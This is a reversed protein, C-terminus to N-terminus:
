RACLARFDASYMLADYEELVTTPSAYALRLGAGEMASRVRATLGSIQAAGDKPVLIEAMIHRYVTCKDGNEEAGEYIVVYPASCKGTPSNALRVDMDAAKLANYTRRLLTDNM